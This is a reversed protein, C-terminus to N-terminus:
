KGGGKQKPNAVTGGVPVVHGKKVLLDAYESSIENPESVVEGARFARRNAGDPYGEFDGLVQYNTM